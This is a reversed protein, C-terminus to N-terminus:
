RREAHCEVAGRGGGHRRGPPPPDDSWPAARPAGEPRTLSLLTSLLPSTVGTENFQPRRALPRIPTARQFGRRAQVPLTTCRGGSQPPASRATTLRVAKLAKFRAHQKGGNRQSSAAQSLPPNLNCTSRLGGLACILKPGREDQVSQKKPRHTNRERRSRQGALNGKAGRACRGRAAGM